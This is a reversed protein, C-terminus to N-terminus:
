GTLSLFLGLRNLPFPSSDLLCWLDCCVGSSKNAFAGLAMASSAALTNQRAGQNKLVCFRIVVVEEEEEEEVVVVVVLVVVVLGM